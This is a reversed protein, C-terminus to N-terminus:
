RSFSNPAPGCRAGGCGATCYRAPPHPRYLFVGRCRDPNGAVLQRSCGREARPPQHTPSPRHHRIGRWEELKKLRADMAAMRQMMPCGMGGQQMQMMGSQPLTDQAFAGATALAGALAVVPVIFKRM